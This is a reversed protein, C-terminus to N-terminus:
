ESDDGHALYNIGGPGHNIKILNDMGSNLEEKSCWYRLSFKSKLKDGEEIGNWNKSNCQGLETFLRWRAADKKLGLIMDVLDVFNYDQYYEYEASM